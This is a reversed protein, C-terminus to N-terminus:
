QPPFTGTLCICYNLVAYPQLNDHHLGGGSPSSTPTGGMVIAGGNMNADPAMNSYPTAGSGGAAEVATRLEAIHVAKLTTGTGITPDTYTPASLSAATYVEALATRLEVVHLGLIATAGITLTADTFSFAGLGYKGRLANIRARLENVHVAKVGSTGATLTSDTFPAASSEIAPVANAPSAQDPAGNRCRPIVIIASSDITQTHSALQAVTLTVDEVGNKDGIAYNSLGAGQGKGIPVRGRLDPLAFTSSGDGGYTTGILSFLAANSAIPLTQGNCLAWGVPPFNFDVLIIEGIYNAM